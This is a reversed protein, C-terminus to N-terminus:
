IVQSAVVTTMMLVCPVVIAVKSLGVSSRPQCPGVSVRDDVFVHSVCTEVIDRSM